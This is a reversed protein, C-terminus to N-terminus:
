MYTNNNNEPQIMLDVTVQLSIKLTSAFHELLVVRRGPVRYKCGRIGEAAESVKRTGRLAHQLM